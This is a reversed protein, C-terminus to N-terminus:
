CCVLYLGRKEATMNEWLNKKRQWLFVDLLVVACLMLFCSMRAYQKTERITIRTVTLTREESCLCYNTVDGWFIAEFTKETNEKVLLM